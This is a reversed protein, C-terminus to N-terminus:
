LRGGPEAGRMSFPSKALIESTLRFDFPYHSCPKQGAAQRPMIENAKDAAGGGRNTLKEQYANEFRAVDRIQQETYKALNEALAILGDEYGIM